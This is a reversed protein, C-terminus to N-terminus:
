RYTSTGIGKRTQVSPFLIGLCAFGVIYGLLFDMVLQGVVETRRCQFQIFVAIHNSIFFIEGVPARRKYRASVLSVDVQFSVAVGALFPIISCAKIIKAVTIIGM